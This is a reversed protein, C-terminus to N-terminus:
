LPLHIQLIMWSASLGAFGSLLTVALRQRRRRAQLQRRFEEESTDWDRKEDFSRRYLRGTQHQWALLGAVLAVLGPLLAELWM